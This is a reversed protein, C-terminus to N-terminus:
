ARTFPLYEARAAWLAASTAYRNRLPLGLFRGGCGLGVVLSDLGVVLHALLPGEGGEGSPHREAVHVGHEAAHVVGDGAVALAGLFWLTM